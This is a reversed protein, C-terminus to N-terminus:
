WPRLIIYIPRLGRPIHVRRIDPDRDALLFELRNLLPHETSVQGPEDDEIKLCDVIRVLGAIREDPDAFSLRALLEEM